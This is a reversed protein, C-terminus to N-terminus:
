IPDIRLSAARKLRIVIRGQSTAIEITDAAPFTIALAGVCALYKM